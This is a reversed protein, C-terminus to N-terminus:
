QGARPSVPLAEHPQRPISAPRAPFQCGWCQAASRATYQSTFWPLDLERRYDYCKPRFSGRYVCGLRGRAWGTPSYGPVSGERCPMTAYAYPPTTPPGATPLMETARPMAPPRPVVEAASSPWQNNVATGHAASMKTPHLSDAAMAITGLGIAVLVLVTPRLLHTTQIMPDSEGVFFRIQIWELGLGGALRTDDRMKRSSAETFVCNVRFPEKDHDHRVCQWMLM